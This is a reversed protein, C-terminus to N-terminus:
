ILYTPWLSASPGRGRGARYRQRLSKQAASAYGCKAINMGRCGSAVFDPGPGASLMASHVEPPSVLHAGDYGRFGFEGGAVARGGGFRVPIVGQTM